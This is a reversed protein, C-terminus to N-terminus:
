AGVGGRRERLQRRGKLELVVQRFPLGVAGAIRLRLGVAARASTLEGLDELDRRRERKRAALDGPVELGARLFHGKDPTWMALVRMHKLPGVEMELPGLARIEDARAAASNDLLAMTLLHQVAKRPDRLVAGGGTRM